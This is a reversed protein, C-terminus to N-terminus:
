EYELVITVEEGLSSISVSASVGKAELVKITEAMYLDPLKDLQQNKIKSVFTVSRKDEDILKMIEYRFFFMSTIEIASKEGSKMLFAAKKAREAGSFLASCKATCAPFKEKDWVHDKQFETDTCNFYTYDYPKEKSPNVGLMFTVDLHYYKGGIKVINWAHPGSTGSVVDSATGEIIICEIGFCDCLLKVAKAIGSCQGKGKGLVTAANQNYKNNLAYTTREIIYDVIKSEKGADGIVGELLVSLESKVEDIKKNLRSTEFKSFIPRSIIKTTSGFLGTMTIWRPANSLYFLEAHDNYLAMYSEVIDREKYKGCDLMSKRSSFADYMQEYLRMNDISLKSKHYENVM